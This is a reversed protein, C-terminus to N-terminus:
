TASPMSIVLVYLPYKPHQQMNPPLKGRKGPGIFIRLIQIFSHEIADREVPSFYENAQDSVVGRTLKTHCGLAAPFVHEQSIYTLDKRNVFYIRM